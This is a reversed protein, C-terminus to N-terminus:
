TSRDTVLLSYLVCHSTVTILPGTSNPRVGPGTSEKGGEGRGRGGEGDRARGSRRTTRRTSKFKLPHAGGSSWFSRDITVGAMVMVIALPARKREAFEFIAPAFIRAGAKTGRRTEILPVVALPRIARRCDAAQNIRTLSGNSKGKYCCRPRPSM